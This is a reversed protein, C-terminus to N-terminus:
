LTEVVTDTELQKWEGGQELQIKLLTPGHVHLLKRTEPDLDFTVQPAILRIIFSTAKMQIRVVPRGNWTTNGEKKLEFGVTEMREIVGLRVPISKGEEIEKWHNWVHKLLYPGVTFNAELDTTDHKTKGEHTYNWFIKDGRIEVSGRIGRRKDEFSYSQIMEDKLALQEFSVAKGTPDSYTQEVADGKQTRIYSFLLKKEPTIDFVRGKVITSGLEAGFTPNLRNISSCLILVIFSTTRM